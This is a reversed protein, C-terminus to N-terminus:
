NISAYRENRKRSVRLVIDSASRMVSASMLRVPYSPFGEYEARIFAGVPSIKFADANSWSGRVWDGGRREDKGGLSVPRRIRM